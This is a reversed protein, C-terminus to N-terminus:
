YIVKESNLKRFYERATILIKRKAKDYTKLANKITGESIKHESFM